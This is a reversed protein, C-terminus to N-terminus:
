AERIVKGPPVSLCSAPLRPPSRASRSRHSIFAGDRGASSHDFYHLPALTDFITVYTFYGLTLWAKSLCDSKFPVNKSSTQFIYLQDDSNQAPNWRQLKKGLWISTLTGNKQMGKARKEEHKCKPRLHAWTYVIHKRHYNSQTHTRTHHKRNTEWVFFLTQISRDAASLSAWRASGQHAIFIAGSLLFGWTFGFCVSSDKFWILPDQIPKLLFTRQTNQFRCTTTYRCCTRNVSSCFTVQTCLCVQLFPLLHLDHMIRDPQAFCTLSVSFFTWFIGGLIGAKTM